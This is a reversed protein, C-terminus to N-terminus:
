SEEMFQDLSSQAAQSQPQVPPQPAVMSMLWGEDNTTEYWGLNRFLQRSPENGARIHAHLPPVERSARRVDEVATQVHQLLIRAAGLRRFRRDVAVHSVEGTRLRVAACGIAEAIRRQRDTVVLVYFREPAQAVQEPTLINTFGNGQRLLDAVRAPMNLQMEPLEENLRVIVYQHQQLADAVVSHGLWAAEAAGVRVPTVERAAIIEQVRQAGRQALEALQSFSRIQEAETKWRQVREWDQLSILDQFNLLYEQPKLYMRKFYEYVSSPNFMQFVQYPSLFYKAALFLVERVSPQEFDEEAAIMSNLKGFAAGTQLGVLGRELAAHRERAYVTQDWDVHESRQCAENMAHQSIKQLLWAVALSAQPINADFIRFEITGLHSASIEAHHDEYPPERDRYNVCNICWISSNGRRSPLPQAHLAALFPHISRAHQAILRKELSRLESIPQTGIHIHQGNSHLGPSNFSYPAINNNAPIWATFQRQISNAAQTVHRWVPSVLEVGTTGDLQVHWGPNCPGHDGSLYDLRRGDSLILDFEFEVGFTTRRRESM